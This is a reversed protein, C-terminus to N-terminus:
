AIPFLLLVCGNKALIYMLPHLQIGIPVNELLARGIIKGTFIYLNSLEDTEKINPPSLYGNWTYSSSSAIPKMEYM